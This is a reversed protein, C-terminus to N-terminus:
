FIAGGGGVKGTREKLRTPLQIRPGSVTRGIDEEEERPRHDGVGAGEEEDEATDEAKEIAEGTTAGAPRTRAEVERDRTHAPRSLTTSARRPRVTSVGM